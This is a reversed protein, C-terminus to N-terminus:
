NIINVENELHIGFKLEVAHKIHGEFDFIEDGTADGYNVIVLAHNKYTGVNGIRKGKWDCKEILWGAAIKIQNDDIPFTIMDPFSKKLKIYKEKAVIPNKFFSGANGIIQPDPLKKNRIHIVTNRVDKLTPSKIGQENLKEELQKYSTNIKSNKNLNLQISTIIFENVLEKNFISNRYSFQCDSKNFIKEEGTKTYIGNLELFTDKLEQGYAGINQIPAAGVSGPIISLNEIGGYNGEVCFQVLDDWVVGAGAQVIINNEDEQIINIGSISNKIVLGDFDNVFLVNSGGGLIFKKDTQIDNDSLVYRLEDVSSVEAFYKAKVDIGFTNYNKLSQNNLIRM